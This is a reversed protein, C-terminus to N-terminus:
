FDPIGYNEGINRFFLGKSPIKARYFKNAMENEKLHSVQFEVQTQFQSIVIVHYTLLQITYNTFSSYISVFTIM